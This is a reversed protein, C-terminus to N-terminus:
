RLMARKARRRGCSPPFRSDVLIGRRDLLTLHKVIKLRLWGTGTQRCSVTM